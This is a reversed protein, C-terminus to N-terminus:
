SSNYSELADIFAPHTEPSIMLIFHGKIKITQASFKTKSFLITSHNEEDLTNQLQSISQIGYCPVSYTIKTKLHNGITGMISNVVINGVEKMTLEELSDSEETDQHEDNLSKVLNILSERPMSLACIGSFVGDFKLWVIPQTEFFRLPLSKTINDPFLEKVQPIQLEVPQRLIEALSSVAENTGANFLARITKIQKFSLEM